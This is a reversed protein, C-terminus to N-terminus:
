RGALDQERGLVAIDALPEGALACRMLLANRPCGCALSTSWVRETSTPRRNGDPTPLVAATSSDRGASSMVPAAPGHRVLM